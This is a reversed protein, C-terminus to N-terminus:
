ETDESELHLLRKLQQWIRLTRKDTRNIGSEILYLRHLINETPWRREQEIQRALKVIAERRRVELSYWVGLEKGSTTHLFLGYPQEGTGDKTYIYEVQEVAVLYYGEFEIM